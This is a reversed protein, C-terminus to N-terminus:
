ENGEVDDNTRVVQRYISWEHVSWRSTEIWNDEVHYMLATFPSVDSSKQRLRDFARRIHHGPLFPIGLPKRIFLHAGQRKMYITKLGIEGVKRMVAQTWHFVCGKSQAEPFLQRLAQWLGSLFSM